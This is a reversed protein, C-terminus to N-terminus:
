LLKFDPHRSRLFDESEWMAEEKTHNSWQVKFFKIRKRRTVCDNQDLIKVPHEPYTLDAELPTMDPMVDDMNGCKKLQSVHFIDHIRALSPPLELKYAVNGCKELIPFSGIYRPALKGKIGFRKVGKMPSVKLYVHNGVDFELPRRRKDAYSEQCSKAARLNDQIRSVSVEAEEIHNPGFITKERPEIWNLPTRCRHGYLVEFPTMKLSEQYSNNNLFEVWPLNKDWSWQHEMVCARLMDELIQNVRETQGNTQPHYALSHILHTRLSAHLQKLFCAVFKSWRDSIIIKTVVHLCLVHAIYIEAYKQVKYSTNIPIFHASKTLRHMIVWILDFNCATLPLGM